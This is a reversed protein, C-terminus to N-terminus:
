RVWLWRCEKHPFSPLLSQVEAAEPKPPRRCLQNGPKHDRPSILTLADCEPKTQPARKAAPSFDQQTFTFLSPASDFSNGEFLNSKAKQRELGALHSDFGAQSGLSVITSGTEDPRAGSALAAADPAALFQKPLRVIHNV